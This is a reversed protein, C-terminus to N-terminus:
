FVLEEFPEDSNKKNYNEQANQVENKKKIIKITSDFGDIIVDTSYRDAGTTKDQWKRTKLKGEIYVTDGKSLFEEVYGTTGQKFVVIRHWETNTKKEKTQKDVWSESTAVSLSAVKRGDQTQRIDPNDGLRGIIITKNVSSM